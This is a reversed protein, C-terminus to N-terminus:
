DFFSFVVGVVGFFVKGGDVVCLGYGDCLFDCFDDFDLYMYICVVEGGDYRLNLIIM